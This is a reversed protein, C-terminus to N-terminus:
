ADRPSPSTYLLCTNILLETFQQKFEQKQSVTAKAWTNRGLVARSIHDLDVHPLLISNVINRVTKLPIEEGRAVKKEAQHLQDIVSSAVINLMKVPSDDSSAFANTTFGITLILIYFIKIAILKM